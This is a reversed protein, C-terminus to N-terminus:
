VPVTLLLVSVMKGNGEMEFAPLLWDTQPDDTVSEALVGEVPVPVHDSMLPLPFIVETEFGEVVTVLRAGPLLIKRHVMEPLTHGEEEEVTFM